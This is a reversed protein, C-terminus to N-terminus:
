LTLNQQPGLSSTVKRSILLTIYVLFLFFIFIFAVILNMMHKSFNSTKPPAVNSMGSNPCEAAVIENKLEVQNNIKNSDSDEQNLDASAKPKTFEARLLAMDFSEKQWTPDLSTSTEMDSWDNIIEPVIQDDNQARQVSRPIHDYTYAVSNLADNFSVRRVRQAARIIPSASGQIDNKVVQNRQGSTSSPVSSMSFRRFLGPKRRLSNNEVNANGNKSSRRWRNINFSLSSKKSKVSPSSSSSNITTNTIEDSEASSIESGPDLSSLKSEDESQFSLKKSIEVQIRRPQPSCYDQFEFRLCSNLWRQYVLEELISFRNKHLKEM